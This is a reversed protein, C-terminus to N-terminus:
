HKVTEPLGLSSLLVVVSSVILSVGLDRGLGFPMLLVLSVGFGGGVLRGIFLTVNTGTARTDMPYIEGMWVGFFAFFASGIALLILLYFIPYSSLTVFHSSSFLLFLIAAIISISSFSISSKKRGVRDAIRGALAYIIFGIFLMVSLSLSIDSLPVGSLSLFTDALSVLPVLFFFSGIAFLSGFLTVRGLNGKLIKSPQFRPMKIKPQPILLVLGIGIASLIFMVLFYLFVNHIIALIADVLAGLYYFGQMLSGVFGRNSPTSLEVAYVYSLGNDGNVGFGILFWALYLEFLDPHFINVLMPLSFLLVSLVLAYKRNWADGLIGIVVGGIAGGIWSMPIAFGMLRLPLNLESSYLPLVFSISYISMASFLFILLLAILEKM